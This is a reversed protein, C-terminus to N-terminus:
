LLLKFIFLRRHAASSPILDVPVGSLEAIQDILQHSHVIMLHSVLRSTLSRLSPIDATTATSGLPSSIALLLRRCSVCCTSHLLCAADRLLLLLICVVLWITFM